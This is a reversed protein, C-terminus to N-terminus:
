AKTPLTLHTYSVPGQPGEVFTQNSLGNGILCWVGDTVKWLKKELRNSHEILEGNAIQGLPGQHPPDDLSFSAPIYNRYDNGM